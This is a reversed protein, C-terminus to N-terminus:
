GGPFEIGVVKTGDTSLTLATRLATEPAFGSGAPPLLSEAIVYTTTPVAPWTWETGHGGVSRQLDIRWGGDVRTVSTARGQDYLRLPATAPPLTTAAAIDAMVGRVDANASESYLLYGVPNVVAYQAIEHVSRDACTWVWHRYDAPRGGFTVERADKLGRTFRGDAADCYEPNALVGGEIEISIRAEAPDLTIVKIPCDTGGGVCLQSGIPSGGTERSFPRVTWTPPIALQVGPLGPAQGITWGAPSAKATGSSEAPNSPAPSGVPSPTPDSAVGTTAAPVQAGTRGWTQTAVVGATIAVVSAAAVLPMLWPPRPARPARRAPTEPWEITPPYRTDPVDQTAQAQLAARLRTELPDEAITPPIQRITM